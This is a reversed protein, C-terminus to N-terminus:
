STGKLMGLKAYVPARCHGQTIALRPAEEGFVEELVFFVGHEKTLHKIVKDYLSKLETNTKMRWNVNLKAVSIFGGTLAEALGIRILTVASIKKPEVCLM